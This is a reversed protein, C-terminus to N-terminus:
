GTVVKEVDVILTWDSRKGTELDLKRFGYAQPGNLISMLIPGANEDSEDTLGNIPDIVIDERYFINEQKTIIAGHRYEGNGLHHVATALTGKEIVLALM